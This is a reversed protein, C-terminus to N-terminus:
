VTAGSAILGFRIPWKEENVMFESEARTRTLAAATRHPRLVLENICMGEPLGLMFAITDAVADPKPPTTLGAAFSPMAGENVEGNIATAGVLGETDFIGPMVLSVNIGDPALELRLSDFAARLGRKSAAYMGVCASPTIAGTSGIFVVDRRGEAAFHRVGYRVTALPGILNLDLLERWMAPEGSTFTGVMGRGAVTVITDLGGLAEVARTISADLGDLDTVDCALGIAQEGLEASLAALRHERRALMAVSAGCDVLARCTVEGIGSSAGTVLVRRGILDVSISM